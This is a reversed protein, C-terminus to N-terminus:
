APPKRAEWQAVFAARVEEALEAGASRTVEELYRGREFRVPMRQLTAVHRAILARRQNHLELCHLRWEESASDVERGDPLTCTPM